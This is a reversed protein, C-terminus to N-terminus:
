ERGGSRDIEGGKMVGERWEDSGGEKGGERRGGGGGERERECGGEGGESGGDCSTLSLERLYRFKGPSHRDSKVQM